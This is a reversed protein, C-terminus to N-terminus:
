KKVQAQAENSYSSMEGTALEAQLRFVYLVNGKLKKLTSKKASGAVTAVQVFTGDSQRMEIAFSKVGNLSHNWSLRASGKAGAASLQPATIVPPPPAAPLQYAGDGYVTNAALRDDDELRAGRGDNRVGSWMLSEKTDSHAFGLTHGLEHGFVEEAAVPNSQYYCEAGDNTIIDAEIIEHYSQGRSSRTSSYYFPGGMALVGGQRCDFTGPVVNGPDNFQITNLNDPTRVGNRVSTPGAYSYDINSAPDNTWAALARALSEGTQEPTIGPQGEAYYSWRVTKGSDFNFWRPSNGDPGKTLNFEATLRSPGSLAAVAYDAERDIGLERDSLWEVFRDLDRTPEKSGTGSLEIRHAESLDRLALRTGRDQRV